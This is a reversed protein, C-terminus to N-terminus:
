LNVLDLYFDITLDKEEPIDFIPMLMQIGQFLVGNEVPLIAPSIDLYSPPPIHRQTAKIRITFPNGEFNNVTFFAGGEFSGSFSIWTSKLAISGDANVPIGIMRLSKGETFIPNGYREGKPVTSTMKYFRKAM